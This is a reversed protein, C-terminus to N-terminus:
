RAAVEACPQAHRGDYRAAEAVVRWAALKDALSRGAHAPSTSPLRQFRLSTDGLTPRVYRHFAQEAKSGNFFVHSLRPHAPLFGAFDNAVISAEDIATDLSGERACAALVDWLAVGAERLRRAREAYALGPGADFLAGMIPWFANRPHAYYQQAALSVVGPMSGLVLVRAAADAIPPFCRAQPLARASTV